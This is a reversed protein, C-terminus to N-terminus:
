RFDLSDKCFIIFNYLYDKLKEQTLATLCLVITIQLPKLQIAERSKMNNKSAIQWDFNEMFNEEKSTCYFNHNVSVSLTVSRKSHLLFTAGISKGHYFKNFNNLIIVFM